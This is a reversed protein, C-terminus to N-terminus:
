VAAHNVARIGLRQRSVFVPVRVGQGRGDAPRHKTPIKNVSDSFLGYFRRLAQTGRRARAPPCAAARRAPCARAPPVAGGWLLVRCLQPPSRCGLIGPGPYGRLLRERRARPPGPAAGRWLSCNGARMPAAPAGNLRGSGARVPPARSPHTPTAGRLALQSSYNAGPGTGHRLRWAPPSPLAAPPAAWALYPPSCRGVRGARGPVRERGKEGKAPCSETSSEAAM